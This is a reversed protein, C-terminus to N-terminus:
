LANVADVVARVFDVVRPGWRSAVDDDLEIVNGARVASLADWGPREAVTQATQGYGITDALFIIDPDADLIFEESLQPYGFFEGDPDAADAINELGLLGYVQGIFTTSTATYLETGLEHFYTVPEDRPQVSSVLADLDARMEAVAAEAEDTTGALEGIELMQAYIDDFTTAAFQDVIQVGAADLSARVDDPGGQWVVVDPEYSLIAEVNPTYGSLETVPAEPPYYSFEDVAVVMPGAGVAFIIETASPSLSIIRLEPTEAPVTADAATSDADEGCAGLLLLLTLLPLLFRRIM